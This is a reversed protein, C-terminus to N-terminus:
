QIAIEVELHDEIKLVELDTMEEQDIMEETEEKDMELTIERSQHIMTDQDMDVRLDMGKIEMDKLIGM